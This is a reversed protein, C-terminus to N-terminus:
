DVLYDVTGLRVALTEVDPVLPALEGAAEGATM